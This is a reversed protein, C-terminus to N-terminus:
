WDLWCPVFIARIAFASRGLEALVVGERRRLAKAGPGCTQDASELKWVAQESRVGQFRHQEAGLVRGCCLWSEEAQDSELLFSRRLSGLFLV